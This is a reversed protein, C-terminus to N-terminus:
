SAVKQRRRRGGGGVYNAVAVVTDYEISPLAALPFVQLPRVLFYPMSGVERSVGLYIEEYRYLTRQVCSPIATGVDKRPGHRQRRLRVGAFRYLRSVWMHGGVVGDPAKACQQDTKRPFKKTAWPSNEGVAAATVPSALATVTALPRRANTQPFYKQNAPRTLIVRTGASAKPSFPTTPCPSGPHLLMGPPTERSSQTMSQLPSPVSPLPSPPCKSLVQEVNM